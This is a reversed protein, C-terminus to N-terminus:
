EQSKTKQLEKQLENWQSELQRFSKEFDTDSAAGQSQPMAPGFARVYPVLDRVQDPTLRGRNAPMLTGKGDMISVQLQADTHVKQWARQTFNPIPPMKDRMISGTGDPGHCIICYQRFIGAGVRIRAATEGSPAVLPQAASPDQPLPGAAVAAATTPTAPAPPGPLKPGEAKIVQKGGQFKRVLAVMQKVDVAGLKDKMPLMFKGKGELISHTLDADTRTKAWAASTFNPLEPMANRMAPNGGGTTDHCALCYTRFVDKASVNATLPASTPAKGAEGQRATFSRVYVALQLIEKPKLKYRFAPMLPMSGYDIQNVLAIDTQATQWALSTFDPILPLAKRIVNGTGDEGHCAICNARFLAAMDELRLPARSPEGSPARSRQLVRVHLIASWRDDRSLQTAQSPMNGQGYTLAHFMQGDKMQVARAALLSPPPPFGRQTVPANGQGTAGHCVQCFNAFVIDGRKLSSDDRESLPNRLEEGARVADQPTPQYHLPLHGRAITGAPPTRLTLSDPFNTNPSFSDFAVPEAMQAEPLFDYNPRTVDREPLIWCVVATALCAPLLFLNLLGRGSM